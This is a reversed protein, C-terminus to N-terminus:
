YVGRGSHGQKPLATRPSLTEAAGRAEEPATITLRLEDSEERLDFALFACCRRHEHLADRNLAAIQALRARFDGVDLTCAIPFDSPPM